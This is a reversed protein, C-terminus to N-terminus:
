GNNAGVNNAGLHSTEFARTNNNGPDLALASRWQGDRNILSLEIRDIPYAPAIVIDVEIHGEQTSHQQLSFAEEPLEGRLAGAEYLATFFKELLLIPRSDGYDVDFVLKEGFQKLSRLIYGIFRVVEGSHLNALRSNNTGHASYDNRHLAPVVIREDELVVAQERQVLVGVGPSERLALKQQQNVYPYLQGDITLAQAAISRWSGRERSSRSITGSLVGVSSYLPYQQHRIYPFVFQIQRLLHAGKAQRAQEIQAIFDVNAFARGLAVSSSHEPAALPLSFLVQIDPRHQATFSLMRRLLNVIGEPEFPEPREGSISIERHGDDIDASCPVFSPAPNPLRKRGFYRLEPDLAKHEIDPLQLRELDPLTILGVQELVLATAIGKLSATDYLPTNTDPLFGSIHEHEPIQILWLKEGGNAFFDEVNRGLWAYKGAMWSRHYASSRQADVFIANFEAPSYLPIPLHYLQEDSHSLADVRAAFGARRIEDLTAPQQLLQATCVKGPCHGLMAVELTAQQNQAPRPKFQIRGGLYDM